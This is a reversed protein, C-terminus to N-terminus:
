KQFGTILGMRSVDILMGVLLNAGLIRIGVGEIEALSLVLEM